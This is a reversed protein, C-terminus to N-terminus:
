PEEASIEPRIFLFGNIHLPSPRLARPGSGQDKSALLFNTAFLLGSLLIKKSVEFFLLFLFYRSIQSKLGLGNALFNCNYYMVDKRANKM